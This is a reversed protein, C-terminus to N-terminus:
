DVDDPDAKVLSVNDAGLGKVFGMTAERDFKPDTSEICLFFKDTTARDINPTNFVPHHPQPLKNLLLMGVVASVAAGLITCEFLVPVFSPWSFLPKGSVIHPYAIVSVWYELAFGGAFGLAGGVFVISALKSRKIGLADTLGHVPISSFGDTHTYGAERVKEAAALIADTSSFEATIGYLLDKPAKSSM